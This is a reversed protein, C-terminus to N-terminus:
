DSVQDDVRRRVLCVVGFGGEGLRKITEYSQDYTTM